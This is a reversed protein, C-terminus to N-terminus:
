GRKVEQTTEDAPFTDSAEGVAKFEIAAGFDVQYQNVYCTIGVKPKGEKDLYAKIQPKGSAWILDGKQLKTLNGLYAGSVYWTVWTDDEAMGKSVTTLKVQPEGKKSEVSEADKALRGSNITYTDKSNFKKKEM